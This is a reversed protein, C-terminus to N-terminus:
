QPKYVSLTLNTTGKSSVEIELPTKQPDAFVPDVLHTVRLSPGSGKAESKTVGVKFKGAPSGHFQGHTVITAKGNSDTWGGVTWRADAENEPYLTVIADALPQEDLTVTLTAPFLRPLDKPRNDRSCGAHAFLILIMALFCFPNKQM